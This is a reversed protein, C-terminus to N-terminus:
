KTLPSERMTISIRRDSLLDENRIGHSYDYRASGTLIQLTRNKLLIRKEDFPPREKRFTMYCDGALSLNAIPEKSLQRDDVHNKLYDGKARRYDIANAENPTCGKMISHKMECAAIRSIIKQISAPLPNAHPYVKRDKLSCHVGWRKGVHKGNFRSPNWQLFQESQQDENTGDLHRIIEEEEETSIFEEFLHLGPLSSHKCEPMHDTKDKASKIIHRWQAKAEDHSLPEVATKKNKSDKETMRNPVVHVLSSASKIVLHGNIDSEKGICTAAHAEILHLPLSKACLPCSEFRSTKNQFSNPVTRPRKAQKPSFFTNRKM